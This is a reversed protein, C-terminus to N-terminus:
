KNIWVRYDVKWMCITPYRWERGRTFGLMRYFRMSFFKHTASSYVTWMVHGSKTARLLASSFPPSILIFRIPSGHKSELSFQEDFLEGQKSEDCSKATGGRTGGEEGEELREIRCCKVLFSHFGLWPRISRNISQTYVPTWLRVSSREYLTVCLYSAWSGSLGLRYRVERFKQGNVHFIWFGLCVMKQEGFRLQICPISTYRLINGKHHLTGNGALRREWNWLNEHNRSM